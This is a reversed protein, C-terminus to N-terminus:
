GVGLLEDYHSLTPVSRDFVAMDTDIVPAGAVRGVSRRAEVAVVEPDVSGAALAREIGAVLTASHM